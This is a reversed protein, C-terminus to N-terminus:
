GVFNKAQRAPRYKEKPFSCRSNKMLRRFSISRWSRVSETPSGSLAAAFCPCSSRETHVTIMLLPKAKECTKSQLIKM